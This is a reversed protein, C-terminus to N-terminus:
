SLRGFMCLGSDEWEGGCRKNKSEHALNVDRCRQALIHALL